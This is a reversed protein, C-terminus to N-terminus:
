SMMLNFVSNLMKNLLLPIMGIIFTHWTHKSPHNEVEPVIAIMGRWVLMFSLAIAIFHTFFLIEWMNELIQAVMSVCYPFVILQSSKNLNFDKDIYLRNFKQNSFILNVLIGALTYCILSTMVTDFICKLLQKLIFDSDPEFFSVFCISLLHVAVLLALLPVFYRRRVEIYNQNEQVFANWETDASALLRYLRIFIPSYIGKVRNWLQRIHQEVNSM